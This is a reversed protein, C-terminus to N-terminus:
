SKAAAPAASPAALAPRPELNVHGLSPAAPAAATAALDNSSEGPTAAGPSQAFAVEACCMALTLCLLSVGRRTM